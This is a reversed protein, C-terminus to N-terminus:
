LTSDDLFLAKYPKNDEVYVENCIYNDEDPITKDVFLAKSINNLGRKFKPKEFTEGYDFSTIYNTSRNSTWFIYLKNHKIFVLCNKINFGEFLLKKKPISNISNKVYIIRQMFGTSQVFVFHLIDKTIVYSFDTINYGSSYIKKFNGIKQNNIERYGIQYEPMKKAYILMHLNSGLEVIRMTDSIFSDIKQPKNWLKDEGQIQTVLCNEDDVINYVLRLNNTLISHIVIDPANIQTSKLILKHKLKEDTM